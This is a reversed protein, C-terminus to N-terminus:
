DPVGKVPPLVSAADKGMLDLADQFYCHAHTDVTKVRKGAITTFRRPNTTQAMAHGLMGCGCFMLGGLAGANKLFNRRANM